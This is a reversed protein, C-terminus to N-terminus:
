NVTDTVPLLVCRCNPHIPPKVPFDTGDFTFTDERVEEVTMVDGEISWCRECVRDDGATQVEAKVTVTDVGLEEFRTLTGESHANIVETRAILNSRRTGIADVRDNLDSAIGGPGQGRALGGSLTERMASQMDTDVGELLEFNRTFLEQVKSEHIPKNLVAEIEESPVNLGTERLRADSFRAGKTYANRVFRNDRSDIVDLYGQRQQSNLWDMFHKVVERREDTTFRFVPMPENMAMDM